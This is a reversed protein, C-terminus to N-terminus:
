HIQGVGPTCTLTAKRSPLDLTIKRDKLDQLFTCGDFYLQDEECVINYFFTDIFYNKNCTLQLHRLQHDVCAWISQSGQGGKLVIWVAE